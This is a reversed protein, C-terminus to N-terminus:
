SFLSSAEKRRQPEQRTKRSRIGYKEREARWSGCIRLSLRLAFVDLVFGGHRQGSNRRCCSTRWQWGSACFGALTVPISSRRSALLRPQAFRPDCNTSSSKLRAVGLPPIPPPKSRAAILPKCEAKSQCRGGIERRGRTGCTSLKRTAM